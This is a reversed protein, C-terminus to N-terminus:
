ASPEDDSDQKTHAMGPSTVHAAQKLNGLGLSGGGAAEADEELRVVPASTFLYRRLQKDFASHNRRLWELVMAAHEIEEDRNHALIERLSQDTTADVRQQYWDV